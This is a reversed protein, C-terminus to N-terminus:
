GCTTRVVSVKDVKIKVLTIPVDVQKATQGSTGVGVLAPPVKVEGMGPGEIRAVAGGTEGAGLEVEIESRELDFIRGTLMVVHGVHGKVHKTSDLWYVRKRGTEVPVGPIERVTGLVFTGSKEGATVCGEIAITNGKVLKNHENHVATTQALAPVAVLACAISLLPLYRTTKV